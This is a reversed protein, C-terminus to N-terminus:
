PEGLRELLNALCSAMAPAYRDQDTVHLVRVTSEATPEARALTRDDEAAVGTLEFEFVSDIATDALGRERAEDAAIAQWEGEGTRYVHRGAAHIFPATCWMNRDKAWTAAKWDANLGDMWAASQVARVPGFARPMPALCYMFYALLPDPLRDFLPGQPFKWHTAYGEEGFCPCWYVPLDSTIIRLYAQRDLRANYERQRGSGNGVNIYLRNVKQRFLDPARNYAAAVDRVSGTTFITVPEASEQLCDLILKVGGQFQEPQDTGDDEPSKLPTALGIAYPIDRGTLAMMQRLPTDGPKQVQREGLDLVVGRIDFEELAFLTALDFHDDPDDHPHFLDSSYIIPVSRPAAPLPGSLRCVALGSLLALWLTRRLTCIV